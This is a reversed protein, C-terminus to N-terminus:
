CGVSLCLLYDILYYSIFYTLLYKLAVLCILFLGHEIVLTTIIIFIISDMM